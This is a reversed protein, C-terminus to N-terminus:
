LLFLEEQTKYVFTAYVYVQLAQIFESQSYQFMGIYIMIINDYLPEHNDNKEPM